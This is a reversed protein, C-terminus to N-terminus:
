AKAKIKAREREGAAILAKIEDGVGLMSAALWAQHRIDDFTEGLELVIPYRDSMHKEANERKKWTQVKRDTGMCPDGYQNTSLITDHGGYCSYSTAKAVFTGDLRHRAVCFLKNM